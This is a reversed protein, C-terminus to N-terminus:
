LRMGLVTMLGLGFGTITLYAFLRGRFGLLRRFTLIAAFVAWALLSFIQKPDSVSLEDGRVASIALGTGIGLTLLSFGILMAQYGIRDCRELAPLRELLLLTKRGKLARDQVLYLLSM